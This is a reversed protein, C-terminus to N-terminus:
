MEAYLEFAALEVALRAIELLEAKPIGLAGAVGVMVSVDKVLQDNPQVAGDPMAGVEYLQTKHLVDTGDVSVEPLVADVVTDPVVVSV